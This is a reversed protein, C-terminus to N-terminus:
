GGFRIFMPTVYPIPVYDMRANYPILSGGKFKHCPELRIAHDAGDARLNCQWWSDPRPLYVVRTIASDGQAHLIPAVLFDDGVM